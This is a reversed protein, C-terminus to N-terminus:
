ANGFLADVADLAGIAEKESFKPLHGTKAIKLTVIANDDHPEMEWSMDIGPQETIFQGLFRVWAEKVDDIKLYIFEMLPVSIEVRLIHGDIINYNDINWPM